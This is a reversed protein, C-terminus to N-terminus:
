IVSGLSREPQGPPDIALWVARAALERQLGALSVGAESSAVLDAPAIDSIRALARTTLALDAPADAPMWTGRGELRVRWGQEHALGCVQAIGAVSDPVARPRGEADAEVAHEGLAHRLRMFIASSM